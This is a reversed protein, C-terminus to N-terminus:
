KLSDMVAALKAFWESKEKLREGANAPMGMLSSLRQAESSEKHLVAVIEDRVFRPMKRLEALKRMIIKNDM